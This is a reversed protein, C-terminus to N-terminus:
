KSFLRAIGKLVRSNALTLLVKVQGARLPVGPVRLLRRMPMSSVMEVLNVGGESSGEAGGRRFLPGTIPNALWDSIPSDLSLRVPPRSGWLTVTAELEVDHASRGIQVSYDGGSVVWQGAAADYRSFARRTLEFQVRASEGANLVVKSFERLERRPSRVGDMPPSVYLQVVESGAKPGSNTVTVGVRLGNRSVTLNSYSFTTYSLGFGFPYRVAVDATEYYRYGVFVGEGYRVINGEGPFNLYSPNDELRFPISEALRGSPSAVGFILDAIAVGGGQGLLWTELIAAASDHWPELSIVGGNTLIVVTRPNVATVSAILRVQPAPLDLHTRDYGESEDGDPLGVFLLVVDSETALAVAEEHLAPDDIPQVLSYGPAFRVPAFEALADLATDVRTPNVQSSGAGQIRPSRAFEGIVSVPQAAALPLLDAENRLLVISETAARRALAHHTREDYDAGATASQEVLRLVRSVSKDLVEQELTGARVAAVIERDSAPGPGPMELDTGAVLAAIRDDVAGWDSLVLGEFGWEARLVDALLWRNETAYVGNIRNYSSMVTWPQERTVVIEFARLYLERMTREDVEASVMMRNTEQNNLAFHKLSAGVGTGQLGRVMAAGLEGSVVPDESFYEFNRGCLPSRKINVGPGLVVAVGETRAELGLAVGIEEVLERNWSSAIGTAPPFCTAAVSSGLGLQDHEKPTRLGHPGDSVVIAPIGASGIALTNWFGGGAVLAAKEELTLERV